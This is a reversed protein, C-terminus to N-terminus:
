TLILLMLALFRMYKTRDPEALSSQFLSSSNEDWIFKTPMPNIAVNSCPEISFNVLPYKKTRWLFMFVHFISDFQIAHKFSLKRCNEM